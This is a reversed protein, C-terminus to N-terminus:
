GRRRRGFGGCAGLLLMTATGPAPIIFFNDFRAEIPGSFPSSELILAVGFTTALFNDTYDLAAQGAGGIQMATVSLQNDLWSLQLQVADASFGLMVTEINALVGGATTTIFLQDNETGPANLLGIGYGWDVGDHRIVMGPVNFDTSYVDFSASGNLYTPAGLSSILNIYLGSSSSASDASLVLQGGSISAAAGTIDSGYTVPGTWADLVGDNFDDFFAQAQVSAAFGMSLACVAGTVLVLKM